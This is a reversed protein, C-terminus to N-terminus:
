ATQFSRFGYINMLVYRTMHGAAAILACLPFVRPSPNSISSFGIAAVAAFIGDKIILFFLEM